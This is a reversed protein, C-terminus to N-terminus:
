IYPCTRFRGLLSRYLMINLVLSYTKFSIKAAYGRTRYIRARIHHVLSCHLNLWRFKSRVVLSTMIGLSDLYHIIISRYIEHVNRMRFLHRM